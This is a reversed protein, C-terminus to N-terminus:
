LRRFVCPLCHLYKKMQHAVHVADVDGTLFLPLTTMQTQNQHGVQVADVYGTVCVPLTMLHHVHDLRLHHLPHLLHGQM